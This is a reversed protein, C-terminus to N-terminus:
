RTNGQLFDMLISTDRTPSNEDHCRAGPIPYQVVQPSKVMDSPAPRTVQKGAVGSDLAVETGRKDACQKARRRRKPKTSIDDSSRSAPM